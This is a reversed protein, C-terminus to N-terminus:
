KKQGDPIRASRVPQPQGQPNQDPFPETIKQWTKDPLVAKFPDAKWVIVPNNVVVEFFEYSTFNKGGPLALQLAKPTIETKPAEPRNLILRAQSFNAADEPRKPYADLWIEKQPNPSPIPKFYYRANLKAADAGFLFPLPGDAIAKGKKDPPLPREILKRNKHDYEWVSNGDCIWHESREPPIAEWKGDLMKDAYIVHFVGKDPLAYNLIGQEKSNPLPPSGPPAKPNVIPFTLDYEWRVFKCDFKKINKSGEEWAKLIAQVQQDEVPTNKPPAIVQPQPPRRQLTPTNPNVPQDPLNQVNPRSDRQVNGGPQGAPYPNPNNGQTNGYNSAPPNQTRLPNNNNNAPYGQNSNSPREDPRVPNPTQWNPTTQAWSTAAFGL